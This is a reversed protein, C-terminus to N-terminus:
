SLQSCLVYICQTLIMIVHCFCVFSLGWSCDKTQNVMIAQHLRMKLGVVMGM